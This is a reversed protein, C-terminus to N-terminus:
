NSLIYNLLFMKLITISASNKEILRNQYIDLKDKEKNLECLLEIYKDDKSIDYIMTSLMNQTESEYEYGNKPCVTMLDFNIISSANQLREMKELYTYFQKLNEKM